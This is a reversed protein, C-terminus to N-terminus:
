IRIPTSGATATFRIPRAMTPSRAPAGPSTCVSGTQVAGTKSIACNESWSVSPVFQQTWTVVNLTLVITSDQLIGAVMQKTANNCLDLCVANSAIVQGASVAGTLHIDMQKDAVLVLSTNNIKARMDPQYRRQRRYDDDV